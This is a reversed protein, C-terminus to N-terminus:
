PQGKKQRSGCVSCALNPRVEVFKWDVVSLWWRVSLSEVAPEGQGGVVGVRERGTEQNETKVLGLGFSM